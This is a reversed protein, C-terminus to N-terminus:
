LNALHNRFKARSLLRTRSRACKRHAGEVGQQEIGHGTQDCQEVARAVHLDKRWEYSSFDGVTQQDTMLALPKPLDDGAIILALANRV